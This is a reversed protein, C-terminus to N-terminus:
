TSVVQYEKILNSEEKMMSLALISRDRVVIDYRMANGNVAVNSVDLGGRDFTQKFFAEISDRGRLITPPRGQNVPVYDLFEADEAFLSAMRNANGEKLCEIYSQLLSM